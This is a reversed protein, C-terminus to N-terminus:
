KQPLRLRRDEETFERTSHDYSVPYGLKTLTKTWSKVLEQRRDYEKQTIDEYTWGSRIKYSPMRVMGEAVPPANEMMRVYAVDDKRKQIDDMLRSSAPSYKV